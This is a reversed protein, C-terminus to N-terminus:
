GPKKSLIWPLLSSRCIWLYNLNHGDLWISSSTFIHYASIIMVVVYLLTRKSSTIIIDVSVESVFIDVEKACNANIMHDIAELNDFIYRFHQNKTVFSRNSYKHDGYNLIYALATNMHEAATHINLQHVEYESKKENWIIIMNRHSDGLYKTM